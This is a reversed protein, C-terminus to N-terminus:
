KVLKLRRKASKKRPNNAEPVVGGAYRAAHNRRYEQAEHFRWYEDFDGSSRLARLRLVAEAGVLSWRAGTLDMRDKVLHRCAGEIVGSAIPLGRALYDDYRLYRRYKLLYDACTDVPKRATASLGRRTASRRMGAAVLSSRGRLIALLRQQVWAELQPSAPPNLVAGAKWLYEVVHIMDVVVTLNLEHRRAEQHLLKLQQKNGDVVAVWTKAREPDRHLADAFLEEIVAAPTMELSAMVRKDEPRPRPGARDEEGGRLSRVVQEPSREYRAVTYVAGVTAMRKANRKEGKTLRTKLKHRRAQAAKRTPERLDEQRMVVGKGDVSLVLIEGSAKDELSTSRRHEYFADFDQAARAALQEAQRKPVKVGTNREVAAVAEDFSGRAAELAVRRRVELSYSEEPLNLAADKPHLSEVGAAGYGLREVVVPGFVTQLERAQLRAGPREVGDTGVVDEVAEGPGRGDIHEQLLRRALERLQVEIDRELDSHSMGAAEESRLYGKIDCYASDADATSAVEARALAAAV